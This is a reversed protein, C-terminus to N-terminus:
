LYAALAVHVGYRALGVRRQRRRGALRLEAVDEKRCWACLTELADLCFDAGGKPPHLVLLWRLLDLVIGEYRLKPLKTGKGFVFDHVVSRRTSGKIWSKAYSYQWDDIMVLYGYARLIELGDADCLTKPREKFWREWVDALPLKDRQAEASKQFSPSPFSYCSEGLLEEQPRGHWDRLTIKQQRNEHILDDLATLIRVSAATVCQIKKQKPATPKTRDAPDLLGLADQDSVQAEGSAFIADLQTQEDKLVRRCGAQWARAVEVCRPQERDALALQRLLELGALRQM